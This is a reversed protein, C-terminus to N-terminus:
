VVVTESEFENVIEYRMFEHEKEGAEAEDAEFRTVKWEGSFGSETMEKKLFRPKEM